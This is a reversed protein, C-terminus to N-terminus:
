TAGSSAWFLSEYSPRGVLHESHNLFCVQAVSFPLSQFPSVAAQRLNECIKASRTRSRCPLHNPAASFQLFGCSVAPFRLFYCSATEVGKEWKTEGMLRQGVFRGLISLPTSVIRPRTCISDSWRWAQNSLAGFDCRNKRDAIAIGM